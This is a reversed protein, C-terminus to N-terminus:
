LQVCLWLSLSLSLPVCFPSFSSLMGFSKKPLYTLSLYIAHKNGHSLIFFFSTNLLSQILSYFYTLHM